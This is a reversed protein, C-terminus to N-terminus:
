RRRLQVSRVTPSSGLARAENALLRARQSRPAEAEPNTLERELLRPSLRAPVTRASTCSEHLNFCRDVLSDAASGCGRGVVAGLNRLLLLTVIAPLADPLQLLTPAPLGLWVKFSSGGCRAGCPPLWFSRSVGSAYTLLWIQGTTWVGCVDTGYCNYWM